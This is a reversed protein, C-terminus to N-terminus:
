DQLGGTLFTSIRYALILSSIMFLFVFRKWGPKSLTSRCLAFQDLSELEESSLKWGLCGVASKAQDLTRIGVLPIAGHCIVWNLCVQAMSKGNKEAIESIKMRLPTLDEWKL